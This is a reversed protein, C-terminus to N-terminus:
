CLYKFITPFLNHFITQKVRKGTKTSLTPLYLSNTTIRQFSTSYKCQRESCERGSGDRFSPHSHVYASPQNPVSSAQNGPDRAHCSLHSVEMHLKHTFDSPTEATM